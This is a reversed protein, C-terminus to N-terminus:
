MWLIHSVYSCKSVQIDAFNFISWVKIKAHLVDFIAVSGYSAFQFSAEYNRILGGFDTKGLNTLANDDM